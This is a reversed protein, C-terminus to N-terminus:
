KGQGGILRAAENDGPLDRKKLYSSLKEKTQLDKNQALDSKASITEMRIAVVTCLSVAPTEATIAAFNVARPSM